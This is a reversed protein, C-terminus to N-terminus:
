APSGDGDFFVRNGTDRVSNVSGLPKTVNATRFRANGGLDAIEGGNAVAYEAGAKKQVKPYWWEPKASVAAGSDLSVARWGSASGGM